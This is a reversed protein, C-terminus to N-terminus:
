KVVGAFVNYGSVIIELAAEVIQFIGGLASDSNGGNVTDSHVTQLLIYFFEDGGSRVHMKIQFIEAVGFNVIAYEGASDVYTKDGDRSATRINLNKIESGLRHDANATRLM